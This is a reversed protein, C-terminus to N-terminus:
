ESEWAYRPSLRKFSIFKFPVESLENTFMIVVFSNEAGRDEKIKLNNIVTAAHYHEM